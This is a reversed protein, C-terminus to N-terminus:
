NKDNDDEGKQKQTKKELETVKGTKKSAILKRVENLFALGAAGTKVIVTVQQLFELLAPDITPYEAASAVADAPRVEGSKVENGASAALAAVEKMTEEDAVVIIVKEASM